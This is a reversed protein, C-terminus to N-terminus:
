LCPESGVNGHSHYLSAATSRIRGRAQSGGDAEPTAKFLLNFFFNVIHTLPYMKSPNHYDDKLTFTYLFM